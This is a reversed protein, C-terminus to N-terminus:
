GVLSSAAMPGLASRATRTVLHEGRIQQMARSQALSVLAKPAKLQGKLQREIAAKAEDITLGAVMVTGYSVGLNVRGEPEVSYLGRIPEDPLTDPVQVFLIDLPEIRYPPLPVLRLADILLIDPPNIVYPLLAVRSHEAPVDEHGEPGFPHLM